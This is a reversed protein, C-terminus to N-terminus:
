SHGEDKTLICAASSDADVKKHINIRDNESTFGIHGQFDLIKCCSPYAELSLFSSIAWNCHYFKKHWICSCFLFYALKSVSSSYNSLYVM